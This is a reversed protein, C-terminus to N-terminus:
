LQDDDDNDKDWTFSDSENSMLNNVNEQLSDNHCACLCVFCLSCAELSRMLYRKAMQMRLRIIEGLWM